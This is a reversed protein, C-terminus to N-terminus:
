NRQLFVAQRMYGLAAAEDLDGAHNPTFMKEIAQLEPNMGEISSPMKACAAEKNGARKGKFKKRAVEDEKLKQILRDLKAKIHKMPGTPM